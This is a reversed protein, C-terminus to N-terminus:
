PGPGTQGTSLGLFTSADELTMGREVLESVATELTYLTSKYAKAIQAPTLDLRSLDREITWLALVQPVTEASVGAATLAATVTADDADQRLYARHTATWLQTQAKGLHTDAKAASSATWFAYLADVVEPPYRDKVAWERATEADIAGAQVLRTLQFLPPYLFRSEWLMPGYEPRIDSQQIARIFQARDVPTGNPGHIGRAAATAMQGPAAPRGRNLYLLHMQEAGYGSLAGGTNMETETIWGRLHLGAYDTAHLVPRRLAFALDTYKTKTHGERVAQTFEAKDALGRNVAQQMEGVGLPLGSLEFLIDARGKDLGQHDSETHQRSESIFGQQRANALDSLSLLRQKLGRLPADWRPELKAKRLGHEFADDTILDRRWAEFLESLGPANLAEGLLADFRSESIGTKEAEGRGWGALKVDEAVIGAATGADLPKVTHATWAENEIDQIVPVLTPSVATGLAFAAGESVARGFFRAFLAV